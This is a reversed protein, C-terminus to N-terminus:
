MMIIRLILQLVRSGDNDLSDHVAPSVTCLVQQPANGITVIIIASYWKIAM